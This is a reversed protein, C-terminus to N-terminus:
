PVPLLGAKALGLLATWGVKVDFDAQWSKREDIVWAVQVSGSILISGLLHCLNNPDASFRSILARGEVGLEFGLLGDLLKARGSMGVDIGPAVQGGAVQM